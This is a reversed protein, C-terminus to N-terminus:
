EKIAEWEAWLLGLQAKNQAMADPAVGGRRMAWDFANCSGALMQLAVFRVGPRRACVM